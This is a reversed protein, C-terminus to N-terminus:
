ISIEKIKQKSFFLAESDSDDVTFNKTSNVSNRGICFYKIGEKKMIEPNFMNRGDFVVADNLRKFDLANFKLFEKWETLIILFDSSNVVQSASNAFFINEKFINKINSVAQPDYALIKCKKELLKKIVDISPASRIDDTEPKFSLGWIGVTKNSIEDKYFDLIKNIFIQRQNENVMDVTAVLNMPQNFKEGIKVLAKVDKPFCSGGYGIGANLFSAGIRKDKSMGIKVDFIDAGVKDAFLALENIFSIRTALMANSAYKTLEASEVNMVVFDQRENLFPRYLSELISLAKQSKVGVVVRDPNLFDNLADGEKLFEPNSAVDFEIDLDRSKLEKSIIKEVEAATGVPVTSKNIFLCYKNLNAGVEHAVDMVFSLDADGDPLSPTGVCSFIIEPNNNKFIEKISNVFVIKNKEIATKLLEALGPEYFPVRGSLLDKIKGSDREIVKVFNGEKQAFCVGTVLGVYGAGIVAINKM